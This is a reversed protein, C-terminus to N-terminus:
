MVPRSPLFERTTIPPPYFEDLPIEYEV